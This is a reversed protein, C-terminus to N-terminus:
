GQPTMEYEIDGIEKMVNKGKETLEWDAKNPDGDFGEFEVVKRILGMKEIEKVPEPIGVLVKGENKSIFDLAIHKKRSLKTPM